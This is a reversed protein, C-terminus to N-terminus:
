RWPPLPVTLRMFLHGAAWSREEKIATQHKQHRSLEIRGKQKIILVLLLEQAQPTLPIYGPSSSIVRYLSNILIEMQASHM